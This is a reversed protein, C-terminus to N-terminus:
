VNVDDDVSVKTCFKIPVWISSTKKGSVFGENNTQMDNAAFANEM